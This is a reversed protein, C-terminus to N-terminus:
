GRKPTSVHWYRAVDAYVASVPYETISRTYRTRIAEVLETREYDMKEITNPRTWRKREPLLQGTAELVTSGAAAARRKKASRDRSQKDEDDFTKSAEWFDWASLGIVTLNILVERNNWIYPWAIQTFDKLSRLLGSRAYLQPLVETHYQVDVEAILYEALENRCARREAEEDFPDPAVPLDPRSTADQRVRTIFLDVSSEFADLTSQHAQKATALRTSCDPKDLNAIKLATPAEYPNTTACASLLLGVALVNTKPTLSHRWDWSGGFVTVHRRRTRSVSLSDVRLFVALNM